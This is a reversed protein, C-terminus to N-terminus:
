SLYKKKSKQTKEKAGASKSMTLQNLEAEEAQCNPSLVIASQEYAQCNLIGASQVKKTLDLQVLPKKPALTLLSYVIDIDLLYDLDYLDFTDLSSAISNGDDPSSSFLSTKIYSLNVNSGFLKIM